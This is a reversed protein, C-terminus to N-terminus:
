KSDQRNSLWLCLPPDVAGSLTILRSLWFSCPPHAPLSYRSDLPNVPHRKSRGCGTIAMLPFNPLGVFRLGLLVQIACSYLSLVDWWTFFEVLWLVPLQNPPVNFPTTSPPHWQTSFSAKHGAASLSAITPEPTTIKCGISWRVSLARPIVLM